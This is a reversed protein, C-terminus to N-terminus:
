ASPPPPPPDGMLKGQDHPVTCTATATAANGALDFARATIIYARGTGQGSRRARVQVTGSHIVIDSANVRENSAVSVSSSDPAVGSGYDSAIM